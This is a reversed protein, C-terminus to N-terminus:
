MTDESFGAGSEAIATGVVVMAVVAIAGVVVVVVVVVVVIGVVVFLIWTALVVVVAFELGLLVFDFVLDLFLLFELLLLSSM